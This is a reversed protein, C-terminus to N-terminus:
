DRPHAYGRHAFWLAAVALVGFGIPFFLPMGMVAFQYGAALTTFVLEFVWRLTFAEAHWESYYGRYQLAYCFATVGVSAVTLSVFAAAFRIEASRGASVLRAAILALPFALLGAFGFLLGIERIKAPTEWQRWWLDGSASAAMATAWLLAGICLQRAPLAASRLRGFPRGSAIPPLAAQRSM